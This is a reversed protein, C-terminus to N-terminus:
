SHNEPDHIVAMKWVARAANTTSMKYQSGQITIACSTSPTLRPNVTEDLVEAEM